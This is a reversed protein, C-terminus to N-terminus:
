RGSPKWVPNISTHNGSSQTLRRINSGDANMIYIEWHEAASVDSGFTILSGDPSWKPSYEDNGNQTLRVLQTGDANMVYIESRGGDRTSTFLIRGGDASWCPNNEFAGTHTLQQVDSGDVRCVLVESNGSFGQTYIFRGGDPSWRAAFGEVGIWRQNAGDADMLWLENRNNQAPYIRTFAIRTGDPSWAPESDWVGSENTLRTLNSGDINMVHISWTTNMNVYGVLALRQGDPSWDHHNLGIGANSVKINGSGDANIMYIQHLEGQVAPQYSYAIVGGGRGDLPVVEPGDPEPESTSCACLLCLIAPVFLFGRHIRKKM